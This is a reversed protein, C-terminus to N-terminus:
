FPQFSREPPVGFDTRLFRLLVCSRMIIDLMRVFLPAITARWVSREILELRVSVWFRIEVPLDIEDALSLEATQAIEM